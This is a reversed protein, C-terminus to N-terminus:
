THELGRLRIDNAIQDACTMNTTSVVHTFVVNQKARDRNSKVIGGRTNNRAYGWASRGSLGVGASPLRYTRPEQSSTESKEEPFKEMSSTNSTNSM